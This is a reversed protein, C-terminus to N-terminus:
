GGSASGGWASWNSSPSSLNLVEFEFVPLFAESSNCKNKTKEELCFFIYPIESRQMNLFMEIFWKMIKNLQQHFRALVYKIKKTTKQIVQM